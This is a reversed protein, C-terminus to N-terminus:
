CLSERPTHLGRSAHDLFLAIDGIILAADARTLMRDIDPDLTEFTPAIGFRDACLVRLLRLEIADDGLLEDPPAPEPLGDSNM